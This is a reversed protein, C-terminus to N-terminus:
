NMSEQNVISVGVTHAQFLCISSCEPRHAHCLIIVMGAKPRTPFDNITEYTVPVVEARTGYQPNQAVSLNRDRFEGSGCFSGSDTYIPNLVMRESYEREPSRCLNDVM